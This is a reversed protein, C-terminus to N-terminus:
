GSAARRAATLAGDVGLIPAWHDLHDDDLDDGRLRLVEIVDQRQRDSGGIAAWELKALITDEPTAVHVPVGLIEVSQRRAFEARSFPRDKIVILDVKWGTATDIVNFQGRTRVAEAAAQEDVYYRERDLATVFVEVASPSPDVVLDIDATTRALGHLSSAFSGALMHDIGAAELADITARLTSVTTM